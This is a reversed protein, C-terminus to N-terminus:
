WQLRRYPTIWKDYALELKRVFADFRNEPTDEGQGVAYKITTDGEKIEKIVADYNFNKLEGSNKKFYLFYSCVRDILQPEVIEPIKTIHCYNLTYNTVKKLEFDIHDYDTESAIYGLQELRDIISKRDVM